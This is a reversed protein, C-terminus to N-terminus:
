YFINNEVFHSMRYLSFVVFSEPVYNVFFEFIIFRFFFIQENVPKQNLRYSLNVASDCSYANIGFNEDLIM